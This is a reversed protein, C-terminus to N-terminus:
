RNNRISHQQEQKLVQMNDEIYKKLEPYLIENIGQEYIYLLYGSPVSGLKDGKYKGLPMPSNDTYEAM